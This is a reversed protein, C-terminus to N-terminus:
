LFNLLKVESRHVPAGGGTLLFLYCPSSSPSILLSAFTRLFSAFTRFATNEINQSEPSEFPYSASAAPASLDVAFLDAFIAERQPM